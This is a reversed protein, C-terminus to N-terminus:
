ELSSMAFTRPLETFETSLTILRKFCFIWTSVPAFSYLIRGLLTTGRCVGSRTTRSSCRCRSLRHHVATLARVRRAESNFVFHVQEEPARMRIRRAFSARGRLQQSSEGAAVQRDAIGRVVVERLARGTVLFEARKLLSVGSSERRRSTTARRKSRCGRNRSWGRLRLRRSHERAPRSGISTLCPRRRIASTEAALASIPSCRSCAM